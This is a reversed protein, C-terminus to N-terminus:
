VQRLIVTSLQDTSFNTEFKNWIDISNCGLIAGRRPEAAADQVHGDVVLEGEGVALFRVAVM